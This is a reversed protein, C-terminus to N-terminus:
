IRDFRLIWATDAALPLPLGVTALEAGSRELGLRLEGPNVLAQAAPPWPEPFSVRYRLAAPLHPFRIPAPAANPPMTARAVLAVAESQDTAIAMQGWIDRDASKPWAVLGGAILNRHAKHLAIVAALTEREKTTLRAPDAEVGMHGFLAVKARFDISHRAGSIPNPSPAVHTGLLEPPLFCSYNRLMPLRVAPDSTDSPWFRRAPGLLDFAIRGGGSACSEITVAPHADALRQMLRVAARAHADPHPSPVPRNHDWKLYDIRHSRLLGDLVGFVHAEVAPNALDLARQNRHLPGPLAWDPHAELLAAGPNAMEPEVWLGFRLGLREVHAILPGLGRPFKVPCPAWDGLGSRDDPRNAFWGDDLVFRECGLAAAADALAMARAESVEFWVAEWSNFHVPRAAPPVRRRAEAHFGQALPVLGTPSFAVLAEPTAWEAGPALELGAEGLWAGTQLMTPRGAGAETFSRHGGSWALHCGLWAGEDAGEGLLLWQGGGFGPRTERSLQEHRGPPIAIDTAQMERSWLGDFLRRYRMADPLPLALSALWRLRLSVAGVNRLRASSVLLAGRAELRILLQFGPAEAEIEIADGQRALRVAAFRAPAGDLLLAPERDEAEDGFPWLTAGAPDDPQNGARIALPPANGGPAGFHLLRPMGGERPQLHLSWHEGELSLGPM